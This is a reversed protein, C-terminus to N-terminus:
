GPLRIEPCNALRMPIGVATCGNPVDRDVVAGAGIKAFDGITIPGIVSAGSGLFVGRGVRPGESSGPSRGITVNQLMTVEDGITSFAGIVIGTGHDLFVSSGLAASPHISVQLQETSASQFLLALDVRGQQWLWNSVRWAQVALFGKFHLLVRLFGPSAPDREVIGQVDRSVASAIEADRAFAEEAAMRFERGYGLPEGLKSAIQYTIAQEIGDSDLIANTLMRGYPQDGSAAHRADAVMSKWLDDAGLM